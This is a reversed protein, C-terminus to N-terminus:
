PLAATAVPSLHLGPAGGPWPRRGWGRRHLLRKLNQGAATLLAERNVKELGRLRFRRLGHWDKAEAFLPEVWVGRKRLAKEYPATGAYARVRDLYAEDFQRRIQRGQDSTTCREKCPCANCTAAPAQYYMTRETHSVHRRSLPAGQPCVYADGHASYTFAEKPYLGQRPNPAPLPTYARIGQRELAAVIEATGYKSDGCVHRPRLRWRFRAHRFLDLFPENEKVEAPAVLVNVILRAQGGDVLYHAQYGLRPGGNKLHLVTADPDTTSVRYDAAWRDSAAAPERPPRGHDALWDFRAENTAALAATAEVDAPQLQPLDTPEATAAPDAAGGDPPTPPADGDAFLQQLHAEVAFRPAYSTYAANAQVKTADAYLEEGWLLGAERCRELVAEFFRRFAEVGYRERIKTLSSHDPLREGLDYGVYWRLSLRDAVVRMLQRESRLGEFFLVLQLKFFVVPDVSPRGGAAYYERVLDRVFALDLARELHRYFHDAPVLEDLTMAPLPGFVREKRAMM